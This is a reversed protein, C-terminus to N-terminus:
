QCENTKKKRERFICIKLLSLNSYNYSDSIYWAPNHFKGMKTVNTQVSTNVYQITFEAYRCCLKDYNQSPLGILKSYTNQTCLM